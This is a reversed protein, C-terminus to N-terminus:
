PNSALRTWQTGFSRKIILLVLTIFAFDILAALKM